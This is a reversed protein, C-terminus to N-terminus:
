SKREKEETGVISHCAKKTSGRGMQGLNISVFMTTILLAQQSRKISIISVVIPLIYLTRYWWVIFLCYFSCFLWSWHGVVPHTAGDLCDGKAKSVPVSVLLELGPNNGLLQTELCFQADWLRLPWWRWVCALVTCQLVSANRSNDPVLM